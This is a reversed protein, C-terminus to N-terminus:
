LKGQTHQRTDHSRGARLQLPYDSVIEARERESLVRRPWSWIPVSRRKLRFDSPPYPSVGELADHLGIAKRGRRTILIQGREITWHDRGHTPLLEVFGRRALKRITPMLQYGIVRDFRRRALLYRLRDPEAMPYPISPEVSATREVMSALSHVPCTAGEGVRILLPRLIEAQRETIRASTHIM